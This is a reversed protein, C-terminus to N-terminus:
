TILGDEFLLKSISEGLEARKANSPQAEKKHYCIINTEYRKDLNDITPSYGPEEWINDDKKNFNDPNFKTYGHWYPIYDLSYIQELLADDGEKNNFELYMKPKHQKLLKKSGNLVHSEYGEVDMKILDFKDLYIYEDLPIIDTKIGIDTEGNVKFMGYNVKEGEFPNINVMRMQDRKTGCAANVPLVNYCGNVIMNMCLIEYIYVQPEIAVVNGKNCRSSFYLSHTGINAGVDLVNSKETLFTDFLNMEQQAWEGYYHVCAGIPDDNRFFFLRGYRSDAHALNNQM